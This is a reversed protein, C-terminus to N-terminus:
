FDEHKSLAGTPCVEVLIDTKNNLIDNFDHTLPESIISKFGRGQFGLGANITEKNLLRVCLGCKICKANEFILGSTFNIKKEIPHSYMSVKPNIVNYDGSINRLMCNNLARCDCHLCNKAEEISEELSIPTKFRNTEEPTEKLWVKKEHDEIKGIVSNFQKVVSILRSSKLFNNIAMSAKKAQGIDRIIQKNQKAAKGIKFVHVDNLVMSDGKFQIHNESITANKLNDFGPVSIVVSDYEKTLSRSLIDNNVEIGYKMEVGLALVNKLEHEFIYKTEEELTNIIAGGAHDTKEFIVCHHGEQSLFFSATIGSFGGGIIAVKKGTSKKLNGSLPEKLNHSESSYRKINVISITHDIMKRRCANECYAPCIKCFTEPMGMEAMALEAAAKIDGKQIHRNMLPINLGLPCVLKCPAECEARHESLLMSIAERRLELVEKGSADIVMGELAQASCSHIFKDTTKNKVLCVSCSTYHPLDNRYCLSPINIGNLRAAEILRTGEKVEINKNNIQLKIM